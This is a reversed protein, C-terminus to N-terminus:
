KVFSYELGNPSKGKDKRRQVRAYMDTCQLTM